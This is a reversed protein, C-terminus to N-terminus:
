EPQKIINRSVLENYLDDVLTDHFADILAANNTKVAQGIANKLGHSFAADVLKQVEQSVPIPANTDTQQVPAVPQPAPEPATAPSDAPSAPPVPATGQEEAIQEGVIEALLERDSPLEEVAADGELSARKEQLMLELAAIEQELTVKEPM